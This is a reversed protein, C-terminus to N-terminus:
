EHGSARIFMCTTDNGCKDEFSGYGDDSDQKMSGYSEEDGYQRMSGYSGENGYQRMTAADISARIFM